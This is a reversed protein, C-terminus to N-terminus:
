RSGMADAFLIDVYTQIDTASGSYVHVKSVQLGTQAKVAMGSMPQLEISSSRSTTKQVRDEDEVVVMSQSKITGENEGRSTQGNQINITVEKSVLIGGYSQPVM